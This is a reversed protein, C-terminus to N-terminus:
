RNSPAKRDLANIYSSDKNINLCHCSAIWLKNRTTSNGFSRGKCSSSCLRRLTYLGRRCLVQRRLLPLQPKSDCYNIRIPCVIWLFISPKTSYNQCSKSKSKKVRSLWRIGALSLSLSNVGAGFRQGNFTSLMASRMSVKGVLSCPCPKNKYPEISSM